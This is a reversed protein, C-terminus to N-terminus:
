CGGTVVGAGSSGSARQGILAGWVGVRVCAHLCILHCANTEFGSVSNQTGRATHLAGLMVELTRQSVRLRHHTCSVLALTQPCLCGVCLQLLAQLIVPYTM